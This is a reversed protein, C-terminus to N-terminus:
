KNKRDGDQAKKPALGLLKDRKTEFLRRNLIVSQVREGFEALISSGGHHTLHSINVGTEPKSHKLAYTFAERYYAKANDGHPGRDAVLTRWFREPAPQPTWSSDYIKKDAWPDWEALRFWEEPISGHQSYAIHGKFQITDLIFGNVFLSRCQHALEPRGFRWHEPRSKQGKCANYFPRGLNTQGVLPDANTRMMKAHGPAGLAFGQGFPAMKLSPIWSPIIEDEKGERKPADPAWPRCLIDLNNFNNGPKSFTFGLFQKCVEFFSQNYDVKFKIHRNRFRRIAEHLVKTVVSGDSANMDLDVQNESGDATDKILDSTTDSRKTRKSHREGSNYLETSKRKINTNKPSSREIVKRKKKEMSLNAQPSQQRGNMTHPDTKNGAQNDLGSSERFLRARMQDSNAVPTSIESRLNNGASTRHHTDGALALVAYIMDHPEKAEFTYLQSVLDELNYRYEIITADDGRRFLDAKANVLRTAPMAKINGLFDPDHEYKGQGKFIKAIDPASREFLAVATEFDDWQISQDGIFLIAKKALAVEQVVWRRTFWPRTMLTALAKWEESKSHDIILKDFAGLDKVRKEIFDVAVKSTNEDDHDGLWICVSTANRYIDSMMAVQENRESDFYQDICIADIWLYRSGNIPRLHKLARELNPRIEYHRWIKGEGDDIDKMYIRENNAGEEGWTWSVAEYEIFPENPTSTVPSATLPDLRPLHQVLITCELRAKEPAGELRM